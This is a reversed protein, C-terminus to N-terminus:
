SANASPKAAAPTATEGDSAALTLTSVAPVTEPRSADVDHRSLWQTVPAPLESPRDGWDYVVTSGAAWDHLARRRKGTVIPILGIWLILSVPYVITRVAARGPTIPRNGPGLVRLGLLGKGISRGTITLGIWYYLFGFTLYGLVYWLESNNATINDDGTFLGVLFIGLSVALGYAFAVTFADIGWAALRTIGGALRGTVTGDTITAIERPRRFVRNVIGILVLDIGVLQRRLADLLRTFVGRSANSVIQDIQARKMLEPMDVRGIMADVDVKGILGDIDVGQILGDIDVGQILGNVDVRKILGDVDVQQVLGNVDVRQILGDIDVKKILGDVDLKSILADLDVNELLVNLDVRELLLNLDIREILKEVDVRELVKDMDVESILKDIDVQGIVSDIDISDVARPVVAGFLRDIPNQSSV